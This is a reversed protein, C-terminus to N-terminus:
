LHLDKMLDMVIQSTKNGKMIISKKPDEILKAGKSELIKRGKHTKAKRKTIGMSDAKIGLEAATKVGKSPADKKSGKLQKISMHKLRLTKPM